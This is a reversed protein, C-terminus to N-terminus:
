AANLINQAQRLLEDPHVPKTAVDLPRALKIAHEAIKKLNNYHGTLMLISCQPLLRAVTSAVELGNVGPMTVDCLLLEPTYEELRLLAEDGSYVAQCDFGSRKFILCLTDAVLREDDVVLVKPM